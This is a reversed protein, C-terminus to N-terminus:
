RFLNLFFLIIRSFLGKEKKVPEKGIEETSPEESITSEEEEEADLAEQKKLCDIYEPMKTNFCDNTVCRDVTCPDQDECDSDTQCIQPIHFCRNPKGPRRQCFDETTSDNDDCDTDAICKDRRQDAEEEQEREVQAETKCMSDSCVYGPNCGCDECCNEKTENQDMDCAKDGCYFAMSISVTATRDEPEDVYFVSEVLINVGNVEKQEGVSIINKISDVNVKIMDSKINEVILEKKGTEYVEGQKLTVSSSVSSVLLLFTLIIM